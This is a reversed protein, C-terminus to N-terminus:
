KHNKVIEPLLSAVYVPDNLRASDFDGNIKKGYKHELKDLFDVSPISDNSPQPGKAGSKVLPTTFQTSFLGHLEEDLYILNTLFKNAFAFLKVPGEMNIIELMKKCHTGSNFHSLFQKINFDVTNCFLCNYYEHDQVRRIIEYAVLTQIEIMMSKNSLWKYVWLEVSKMAAENTQWDIGELNGSRHVCCMHAICDAFKKSMKLHDMWVGRSCGKPQDPKKKYDAISFSELPDGDMAAILIKENLEEPELTEVSNGNIDELAGRMRDVMVDNWLTSVREMKATILGIDPNGQKVDASLEGLLRRLKDEEKMPLSSSSSADDTFDLGSVTSSGGEDKGKKGKARRKSGENVRMAKVTEELRNIEDKLCHVASTGETRLESKPMAESNGELNSVMQQPKVIESSAVSKSSRDGKETGNM